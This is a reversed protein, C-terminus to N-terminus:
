EGCIPRLSVDLRSLSPEFPTDPIALNEVRVGTATVEAPIPIATADARKILQCQTSGTRTTAPLRLLFPRSSIGIPINGVALITADRAITVGSVYDFNGRDEGVALSWDLGGNADLKVLWGERHHVEDELTPGIRQTSGALIVSGDDSAAIDEVLDTPGVDIARAWTIRGSGNISVAFGDVGPRGPRSMSGGVVVGDGVAAANWTQFYPDGVGLRLAWTLTGNADLRLLRDAGLVFLGGDGSPAAGTAPMGDDTEIAKEWLVKGVADFRVVFADSRTNNTTNRYYREHRRNVQGVGYIGGDAAGVLARLSGCPETAFARAWLVQGDAGLRILAAREGLGPVPCSSSGPSVRLGIAAFLGGDGASLLREVNASALRSAWAVGVAPKILMVQGNDALRDLIGGGAVGISGDDLAVIKTLVQFWAGHQPVSTEVTSIAPEGREGAQGAASGLIWVSVVLASIIRVSM